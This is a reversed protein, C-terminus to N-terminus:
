LKIIFNKGSTNDRTTAGVRPSGNSGDDGIIGAFSDTVTGYGGVGVGPQFGDSKSHSIEALPSGYDCFTRKVKFGQGRDEEVAGLAPGSKVRTNITQNGTGKPSVARM